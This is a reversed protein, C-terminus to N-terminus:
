VWHQESPGGAPFFGGQRGGTQRAPVPLRKAQRLCAEGGKPLCIGGGGGKPLPPSPPIQEFTSTITPGQTFLIPSLGASIKHVDGNSEHTPSAYPFPNTETVGSSSESTKGFDEPWSSETRFIASQDRAQRARTLHRGDITRSLNRSVGM